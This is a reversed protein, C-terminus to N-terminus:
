KWPVLFFIYKYQLYRLNKSFLSFLFREKINIALSFNYKYEFKKKLYRLPLIGEFKKSFKKCNKIFNKQFNQLFKKQFIKKFIKRLKKNSMKEPIWYLYKKKKTGQFYFNPKYENRLEIYINKRKPVSSIFTLNINM